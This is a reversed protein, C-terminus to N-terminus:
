FGEKKWSGPTSALRIRKQKRETIVELVRTAEENSTDFDSPDFVEIARLEELISELEPDFGTVALIVAEM